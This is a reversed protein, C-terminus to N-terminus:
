AIKRALTLFSCERQEDARDRERWEETQTEPLGAHEVYIGNAELRRTYEVHVKRLYRQLDDGSKKPTGACARVADKYIRDLLAPAPAKFLKRKTPKRKV